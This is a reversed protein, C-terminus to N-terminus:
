SKERSEIKITLLGEIIKPHNSISLRYSVQFTHAPCGQRFKALLPLCFLSGHKLSRIWYTTRNKLEDVNPGTCKQERERKFEMIPLEPYVSHTMREIEESFTLPREPEIPEEPFEPLDQVPIMDEPFKITVDIDEAPTNGISKM